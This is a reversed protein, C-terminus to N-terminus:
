EVWVRMHGTHLM